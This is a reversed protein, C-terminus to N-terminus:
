VVHNKIYFGFTVKNKIPFFVTIMLATFICWGKIPHLTHADIRDTLALSEEDPRQLGVEVARHIYERSLQQVKRDDALVEGSGRM